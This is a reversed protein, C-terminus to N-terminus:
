LDETGVDFTVKAELVKKIIRIYSDQSYDTFLINEIASWMTFCGLVDTIDSVTDSMPIHNKFALFLIGIVLIALNNLLMRRNEYRNYYYELQYHSKISDIISEKQVDTLEEHSVINITIEKSKTRTVSLDLYEVLDTSIDDHNFPNFTDEYNDICLVIEEM